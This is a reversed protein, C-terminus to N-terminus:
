QPDWVCATAQAALERALPFPTWGHATLTVQCPAAQLTRRMCGLCLTLLLHGVQPDSIFAPVSAAAGAAPLLGRLTQLLAALGEADREYAVDGCPM